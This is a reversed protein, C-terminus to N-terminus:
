TSPEFLLSSHFHSSTDHAELIGEVPMSGWLSQFRSARAHWQYGLTELFLVLILHLISLYSSMIPCKSETTGLSVHLTPKNNVLSCQM